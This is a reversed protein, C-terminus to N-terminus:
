CTYFEVSEHSILRFGLSTLGISTSGVCLVFILLAEYVDCLLVLAAQM